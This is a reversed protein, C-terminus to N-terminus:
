NLLPWNLRQLKSSKNSTKCSISQYIRQMCKNKSDEFGKFIVNQCIKNNLKMNWKTIEKLSGITVWFFIEKFSWDHEILDIKNILLNDMTWLSEGWTASKIIKVHICENTIYKVLLALHTSANL